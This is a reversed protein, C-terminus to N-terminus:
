SGDSHKQKAKVYMGWVYLGLVALAVFLLLQYRWGFDDAAFMVGGVIAAAIGPWILLTSPAFIEITVLLAAVVWWHWYEISNLFEIM